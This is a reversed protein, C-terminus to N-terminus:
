LFTVLGILIFILLAALNTSAAKKTDTLLESDQCPASTTYENIFFVRLGKAFFLLTCNRRNKRNSININM